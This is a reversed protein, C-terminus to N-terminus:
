RALLNQTFLIQFLVFIIYILLLFIAEKRSIIEHTRSFIMFFLATLTTFIIGIFYPSLDAIEFPCILALLGLVLTANIVVSGIVDGIIMEKRGMTISRIGFTIEPLSTGLAVFLVGIFVLPIDLVLALNRASFVVGEASLLLLFVAGLFIGLNRFFIKFGSRNERFSNSLIRTFREEQSLLQRFYFVLVSLLVIGDIRSLEKDLILLLPLLSIISADFAARQLVKGQFKLGKALFTGIGIVLTLVIINSGLITGFSLNPVQRIASSIGIFIEPTSTAFAMLVATVIFERWRLFHAIITLTRVVWSGSYVLVLCSIIFIFIYLIM